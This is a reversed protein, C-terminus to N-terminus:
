GDSLNTSNIHNRAFGNNNLHNANKSHCRTRNQRKWKLLMVEALWLTSRFELCPGTATMDTFARRLGEWFNFAFGDKAVSIKVYIIRPGNTVHILM